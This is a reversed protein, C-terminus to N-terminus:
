QDGLAALSIGAARVLAPHLYAQRPSPLPAAAVEALLARAPETLGFRPALEAIALLRAIAADHAYIYGLDDRPVITRITAMWAELIAVAEQRDAGPAAKAHFALLHEFAPQLEVRLEDDGAGTGLPALALEALDTRLQPSADIWALHGALQRAAPASVYVPIGAPGPIHGGGDDGQSDYPRANAARLMRSLFRARREIAVGPLSLAAVIRCTSEASTLIEDGRFVPASLADFRRDAEEVPVWSALRVIVACRSSSRTMRALEADLTALRAAAQDASVRGGAPELELADRRPDFVTRQPSPRRAVGEPPHDLDHRAAAALRVLDRDAGPVGSTLAFRGRAAIVEDLLARTEPALGRPAAHRGLIELRVLLAELAVPDPAGALGRASTASGAASSASATPSHAPRASAAPGM